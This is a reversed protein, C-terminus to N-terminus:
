AIIIIKSKLLSLGGEVRQDPALAVHQEQADGAVRM